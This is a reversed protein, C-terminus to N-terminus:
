FTYFISRIKFLGLLLFISYFRYIKLLFHPKLSRFISCLDILFRYFFSHLIPIARPMSKEHIKMSKRLCTPALNADFISRFDICFFMWFIIAFLLCRPPTKSADQLDLLHGSASLARFLGRRSARGPSSTLDRLSFLSLSSPAFLAYTVRRSSPGLVGDAGLRPPPYYLYLDQYLYLHLYLIIYIHIYIYVLIYIYIYAIFYYFSAIIYIM